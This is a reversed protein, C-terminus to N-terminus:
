LTNLLREYDAHNGVFFWVMSDDILVGVARYDQSIRASYIPESPHVKKFRLGPHRPDSQFLRFAERARRRVEPPLDRLGERFERTTKSRL